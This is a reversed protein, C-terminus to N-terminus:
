MECVNENEQFGLSDWFANNGIEDKEELILKGPSEIRLQRWPEDVNKYLPKWDTSVEPRGNKVFGVLIQVMIETMNRDAETSMTDVLNTKFMYANDDTHSVGINENSNIRMETKSHAGRYNFFYSYVPSSTAASHLKGAKEIDAIFLRDTMAQILRNYTEKNLSENGLYQARIKQGIHERNESEIVDMYHLIYPLLDNWNDELYELKEEDYFDSGPYLGEGSVYSIMWPLDQVKKEKLLTYPHDPIFPSPAWIDVVPGFVTFPNYLWPQFNKVAAVIQKGPRSRLCDVTEEVEDTPCGTLNALKLAKELPNEVLAWGNLACGSQSYGKHFLGASGPTLFHLQVSAGGASNGVITVSDPNGGFHHINMKIWKLVMQQDKLGMNGPVLDDETSLFGLPGLRYNFNVYVIKKDIIFEPGQNGGKNFMFAGGHIYVLVDMKETPNLDPTYINMYLCDEDGTVMDQGQPTYHYLQMCTFMTNAKWIGQWPKPPQPDKFRLHGVPPEAYPVGEFAYIINGEVSQKYFGELVGQRLTVKPLDSYQLAKIFVPFLLYVFYRM